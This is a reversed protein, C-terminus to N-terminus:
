YHVLDFVAQYRYKKTSTDTFNYDKDLKCSSIVALAVIGKMVAKVEENLQAADFMTDAYSQIAISARKIHNSEGGSVKEIVVFKGDQVRKETYCDVDLNSALYDLVSKEIM